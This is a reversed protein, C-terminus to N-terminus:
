KRPPIQSLRAATQSRRISSKPMRARKEIITKTRMGETFTRRNEPSKDQVPTPQEFANM